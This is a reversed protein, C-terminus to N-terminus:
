NRVLEAPCYYSNIIHLSDSYEWMQFDFEGERFVHYYGHHTLAECPRIEADFSDMDMFPTVM